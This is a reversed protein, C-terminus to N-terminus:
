MLGHHSPLHFHFFSLVNLPYFKHKLTKTLQYQVLLVIDLYIVEHFPSYNM